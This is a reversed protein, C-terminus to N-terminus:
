LALVLSKELNRLCDSRMPVEVLKKMIEGWPQVMHDLKVEDIQDQM